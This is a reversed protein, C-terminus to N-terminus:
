AALARPPGRRPHTGAIVVGADTVVPVGDPRGPVLRQVVATPGPVSLVVASLARYLGWLAAEGRALVWAAVVAAAVHGAAMETAVPAHHLATGGCLTFVAHFAAQSGVAAAALQVPGRQRDAWVVFAAGLPAAVVLMALVSAVSGGGLVHGSLALLTCCVALACGRLVRVAGQAPSM